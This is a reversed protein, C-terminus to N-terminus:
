CLIAIGQRKGGVGTQIGTCKPQKEVNTPIWRDLTTAFPIRVITSSSSTWYSESNKKKLLESLYMM